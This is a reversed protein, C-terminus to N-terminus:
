RESWCADCDYNSILLKAQTVLKEVHVSKVVDANVFEYEQNTAHLYFVIMAMGRSDGLSDIESKLGMMQNKISSYQQASLLGTVFHTHVVPNVSDLMFPLYAADILDTYYISYTFQEGIKEIKFVFCTDFHFPLIVSHVISEDLENESCPLGYSHLYTCNFWPNDQNKDADVSTCATTCVMMILILLLGHVKM